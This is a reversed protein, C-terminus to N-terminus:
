TVFKIIHDILIFLGITLVFYGFAKKLNKESIKATMRQGVLLGIIGLLSITFILPWSINNFASLSIFFGFFSNATIILLSTGIAKEMSLGLFFVLAPVILFGGGAGVFGTSLGVVFGKLAIDILLRNKHTSLNKLDSHSKTRIMALSSFIMLSAFSVMILISKTLTFELVTFLTDPLSPLILSRSVYVGIFSPIAFLFATRFDITRKQWNLLTGVLATTGVIFLSNFTASVSNQHFFYYLIPVTLISGGGGFLGLTLGMLASAIYGFLLIM